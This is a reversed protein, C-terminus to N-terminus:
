NEILKEADIPLCTLLSNVASNGELSIQQLERNPSEAIELVFTGLADITTEDPFLENSVFETLFMVESSVTPRAIITETPGTKQPSNMKNLVTFFGLSIIVAWIAAVALISRQTLRFRRLSDGINAKHIHNTARLITKCLMENYIPSVGPAHDSLENGIRVNVQYFWRCIECSEIHREVALPLPNGQDLKHSIILRNYWCIM